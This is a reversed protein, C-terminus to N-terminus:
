IYILVDMVLTVNLWGYYGYEVRDWDYVGEFARAVVVIPTIMWDEEDMVVNVVIEDGIHKRVFTLERKQLLKLCFM